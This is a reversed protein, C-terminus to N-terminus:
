IDGDVDTAAPKTLASVFSSVFTTAIVIVFFTFFVGADMTLGVMFYLIVSFVSVQFLIVPVDAAIQALCFAAPHFFAFSKHKILIPRGYFSETVESMSLLSNFLLAFFCAGFKMFLGASTSSANYFLSGAILAQVITSIQKIMFTAKDSWIIQYQRVVCAQVQQLFNLTLPSTNSVGKHKDM